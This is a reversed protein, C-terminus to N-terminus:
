NALKYLMYNNQNLIIYLFLIIIVSVAILFLAVLVNQLPHVCLYAAIEGASRGERKLIRIKRIMLLLLVALVVFILIDTFIFTYAETNKVAFLTLPYIVVDMIVLSVVAALITFIALTALDRIRDGTRSREYLDSRNM